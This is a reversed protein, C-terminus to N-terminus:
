PQWGIVYNPGSYEVGGNALLIRRGDLTAAQHGCGDYDQPQKVKFWTGNRRGQFLLDPAVDHLVQRCDTKSLVVYVDPVGDGNADVVSLSHSAVLLHSSFAPTAFYPSSGTNLWIQLDNANTLVVLDQRGDHNMDVLKADRWGGIAPSALETFDGARDNVYVHAANKGNCVVLDDWGDGDVDGKSACQFGRNGTALTPVEVFGAGAQNIFVHNINVQGDPRVTAENTVYVDPWGDHNFDFFVPIRGRGYHDAAGHDISKHFVGAEDQLWLENFGEGQGKDAGVTCYFDLRGDRNFDAADCDHRDVWELVQAGPVYGAPSWYWVRDDTDHGSLLFDDHGDGDFDGVMTGWARSTELYQATYQAQATAASFAALLAAMAQVMSRKM